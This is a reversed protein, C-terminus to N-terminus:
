PPLVESEVRRVVQLVRERVEPRDEEQQMLRLAITIQRLAEAISDLASDLALYMDSVCGAQGIM